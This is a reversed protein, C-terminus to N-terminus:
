YNIECTDLSQMKKLMQLNPFYLGCLIKMSYPLQPESIIDLTETTTNVVTRSFNLDTLNVHCIYEGADSAMLNEFALVLRVAVTRNHCEYNFGGFRIQDVETKTLNYHGPVTYLHVGNHYWGISNLEFDETHLYEYDLTCTLTLNTNPGLTAAGNVTTNINVTICHRYM